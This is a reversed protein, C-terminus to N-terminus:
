VEAGSCSGYSYQDGGICTCGNTCELNFPGRCPGVCDFSPAATTTTTPPETTTTSTTTPPATTTTSTSTTTTTTSTTTTVSSCVKLSNSLLYVKGGSTGSIGKSGSPNLTHSSSPVLGMILQSLTAYSSTVSTSAFIGSNLPYSKM